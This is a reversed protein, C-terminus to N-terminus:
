EADGIEVQRGSTHKTETKPIKLHLVGDKYSASIQEADASDPLEFSREFSGYSREVLHFKDTDKKEEMTREGRLTVTNDQVEVKIDEKKMGPMEATVLIEKDTEKVDVAPNFGESAAPFPFRGRDLQRFIRDFNDLERGFGPRALQSFPEWLRGVGRRVLSM